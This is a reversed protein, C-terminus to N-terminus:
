LKIAAKIVKTTLDIYVEQEHESYSCNGFTKKMQQELKDCEDNLKTHERIYDIHDQWLIVVDTEEEEYIVGSGGCNDCSENDDYSDEGTGSCDDCGYETEEYLAEVANGNGNNYYDYSLRSIVRILEGKVTEAEGRDPVLENFMQDYESQLEGKNEWYSNIM